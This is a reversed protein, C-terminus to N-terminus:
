RVSVNPGNVGFTLISATVVQSSALLIFQGLYAGDLTDVVNSGPAGSFTM